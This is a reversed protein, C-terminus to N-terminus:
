RPIYIWANPTVDERVPNLRGLAERWSTYSEAAVFNWSGVPIIQTTYGMGNVKASYSEAYRPTLFCGVVLYYNRTAATVHSSGKSSLEKEYYMIISDLRAQSEMQIKRLVDAHKKEALQLENELTNIYTLLTDSDKKLIKENIFKCGPTLLAIALLLVIFLRM